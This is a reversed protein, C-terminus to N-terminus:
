GFLSPARAKTMATAIATTPESPEAIACFTPAARWAEGIVYMQGSGVFLPMRGDTSSLESASGGLHLSMRWAPRQLVNRHIPDMREAYHGPSTPSQGKLTM